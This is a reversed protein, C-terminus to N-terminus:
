AMKALLERKKDLFECFKERKLLSAHPLLSVDRDIPDVAPYIGKSALGRSLVTIADLHGFIIVPAPDTLDDAPVLM